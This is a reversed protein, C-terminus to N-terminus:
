NNALYGELTKLDQPLDTSFELYQKTKPHEFGLIYAHLAQRKMVSIFKEGEQSLGKLSRPRGYVPDGILNHGLHTMHVRIQHTRGTMLKVDVLSVQNNLYITKTKYHTIAQKGNSKLVAMKKRNRPNRGLYTEIVGERPAPAGYCFALYNRTMTRNQFQKSLHQHADDTKAVVMVGSTDQDLRHVLGPREVGGIGSLKGKCHHLLANVLTGQWNGPAPHVTLGAPKNIVILEDDEYLVDLPIDEAEIASSEPPPIRVVYVEDLAVKHKPKVILQESALQVQEKTILNQLFTRSQKLHSSLFQDLRLGSERESVPPLVIKEM